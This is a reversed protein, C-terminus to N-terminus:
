ESVREGVESTWSIRAPIARKRAVVDSGWGVVVVVFFVTDPGVAVLWVDLLFLAWPGLDFALTEGLDLAVLEWALSSLLFFSSAPATM